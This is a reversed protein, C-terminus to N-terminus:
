HLEVFYHAILAVLVPVTATVFVCVGVLMMIYKNHIDVKKHLEKIVEYIADNQKESFFHNATVLDKIGQLMLTTNEKADDFRQSVYSRYDEETM